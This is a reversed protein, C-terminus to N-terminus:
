DSESSKIQYVAPQNLQQWWSALRGKLWFFLSLLITGLLLIIIGMRSAQNKDEKKPQNKKTKKAKAM